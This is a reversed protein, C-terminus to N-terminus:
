ATIRKFHGTTMYLWIAGVAILAIATWRSAILRDVSEGVNALSSGAFLLILGVGLFVIPTLNKM